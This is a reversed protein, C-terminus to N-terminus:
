GLQSVEGRSPIYAKDQQAPGAERLADLTEATESDKSNTMSVVNCCEQMM